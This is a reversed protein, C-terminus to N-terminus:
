TNTIFFTFLCIYPFYLLKEKYNCLCVKCMDVSVLHLDTNNDERSIPATDAPTSTILPEPTLSTDANQPPSTVEQQTSQLSQQELATEEVVAEKMKNEELQSKAEQLTAELPPLNELPVNERFIVEQLSGNTSLPMFNGHNNENANDDTTDFSPPSLTVPLPDMSHRLTHLQEVCKGPTNIVSMWHSLENESSDMYSLQKEHQARPGLRLGGILKEKKSSKPSNWVTVEIVNNNRLDSLKLNDLTFHENWVPDHNNKLM